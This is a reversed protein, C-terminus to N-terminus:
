GRVFHYKNDNGKISYNYNLSEAIFKGKILSGTLTFPKSKKKRTDVISLNEGLFRVNGNPTITDPTFVFRTNKSNGSKFKIVGEVILNNHNEKVDTTTFSKVNEYVKKLYSEGLKNFEEDDFDEIDEESEEEEGGLDLGLDEDGDEDEEDTNASIETEMEDSLPKIVEDMPEGVPNGVPTKSRISIEADDLDINVNEFSEDVKKNKKKDKETLIEEDEDDKDKLEEDVEEDEDKVDVEVEDGDVEAETDEENSKVETESYPAVQGIVKYGATNFCYPCEDEVNALGEEDDIVVDKPNKYLKTKCVACELIVNGIYSDKLDEETEADIDIITIPNEEDTDEFDQLQQLGDSSIDFVDEKLFDLQKFADKLIDSM